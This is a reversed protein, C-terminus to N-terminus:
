KKKEEKKEMEGLNWQLVQGPSILDEPIEFVFDFKQNRNRVKRRGRGYLPMARGKAM